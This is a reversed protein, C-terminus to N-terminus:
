EAEKEKEKDGKGGGKRRPQGKPRPKGNEDVPEPYDSRRPGQRGLAQVNKTVQTLKDTDQLFALACRIWAADATPAHGKLRRAPAM